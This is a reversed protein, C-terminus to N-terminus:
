HSGIIKDPLRAEHSILKEATFLREWYGFAEIFWFVADRREDGDSIRLSMVLDGPRVLGTRDVVPDWNAVAKVDPDVRTKGMHKSANAIERCIYLPRSDAVIADQFRELGKRLGSKTGENFTLKFRTELVQRTKPSSQWLWDTIHWATVATNFAMFIPEPFIENDKWVSMADMLRQIEWLLKSLMHQPENMAFVTQIESRKPVEVM